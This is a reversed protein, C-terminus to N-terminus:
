GALWICGKSRTLEFRRHESTGGEGWAYHAVVVDPLAPQAPASSSGELGEYLGDITYDEYDFEVTLLDRQVLKQFSRMVGNAHGKSAGNWDYLGSLQNADGSELARRVAGIMGEPTRAACGIGFRFGGNAAAVRQMGPRARRVPQPDGGLAYSVGLLHCQQDTFVLTGDRGECRNITGGAAAREPAFAAIALLAAVAPMSKM